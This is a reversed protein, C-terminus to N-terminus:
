AAMAPRHARSVPRGPAPIDLATYLGYRARIRARTRPNTIDQAFVEVAGMDGAAAAESILDILVADDGATDQEDADAALAEGTADQAPIAEAEALPHLEAWRAARAMAARNHDTTMDLTYERWETKKGDESRATRRTSTAKLGLQGLLAGFWQATKDSARTSVVLGLYHEIASKITPQSIFEVFPARNTADVALTYTNEKLASNVGARALVTAVLAARQAAYERDIMLEDRQKEDRARALDPRLVMALLRAQRRQQGHGDARILEPTIDEAQHFHRLEHAVKAARDDRSLDQGHRRMADYELLTLRRATQVSSIWAESVAERAIELDERIVARTDDGLEAADTVTFGAAAAHEYFRRALANKSDNQLAETNAWLSLVAQDIAERQRNRTIQYAIAYKSAARLKQARLEAPDTTAHGNTDIVYAHVLQDIPARVRGAMQLLDRYTQSTCTAYLFTAHFHPVAPAISVGTSLSPSCILVDIETCRTSINAIFDRTDADPTEDATIVRIRLAPYKAALDRALTDADSKAACMVAARKNQELTTYLANILDARNAYRVLAAPAHQYTNAILALDAGHAESAYDATLPGLDADMYVAHRANILFGRLYALVDARRDRVTDGCAHQLVQESEDIVVWDFVHHEPDLKPLSDLTIALRTSDRLQAATMGHYFDAGYRAAQEGVLSVRHGIILLRADAPIQRILWETKGTGIASRVLTAQTAPLAADLYRARTTVVPAGDPIARLLADLQPAQAADLLAQLRAPGATNLYLDLDMKAAGDPLPLRVIRVDIGASQLRAANRVTWLEGPTTPQDQTARESDYCIYVTKGRLAAVFGAPLYGIGPQAVAPVTLRGAWYDQNHRLAKFEGETLLVAPAAALEDAGYLVPPGGAYIPGYPSFYKTESTPSQNRTRLLAVRGAARYPITIAHQLLRRAQAQRGYLGGLHGGRYATEDQRWLERAARCEKGTNPHYGLGARRITADTLGRGRLYGLAARAAPDDSWLYGECIAAIGAYGAQITALTAADIIPEAQGGTATGTAGDARQHHQCQNCIWFPTGGSHPKAVLYFRDVGGCEPCPRRTARTAHEAPPSTDGTHAHAMM